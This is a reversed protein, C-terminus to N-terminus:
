SVSSGSKPHVKTFRAWVRFLERVQQPDWNSTIKETVKVIKRGRFSEAENAVLVTSHQKRKRKREPLVNKPWFFGKISWLCLLHQM